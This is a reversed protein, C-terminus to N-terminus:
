NKYKKSTVSICTNKSYLSYSFNESCLALLFQLLLVEQGPPDLWVFTRGSVVWGELSRWAFGMVEEKREKKEEGEEEEEEEEEEEAKEEKKELLENM